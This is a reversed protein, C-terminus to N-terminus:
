VLKINECELFECLRILPLGILTTPDDSRIYEFLSIGLGESKFSGACDYPQEDRLYNEITQANLQKFKVEVTEVALQTIGTKTNLLCLGAYFTVIKGSLRSLQAVSAGHNGPKGLIDSDSELVLDSGIVLANPHNKAVTQAKLGSLRGALDYASENPLRNEDCNPSIYNFELKLRSLLERRYVSSSALILPLQSM